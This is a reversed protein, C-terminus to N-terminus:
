PARISRSCRPRPWARRSTVGRARGARVDRGAGTVRVCISTVSIGVDADGDTMLGIRTMAPFMPERVHAAYFNRMERAFKLYNIPDGGAYPTADKRWAWDPTMASAAAKVPAQMAALWRPADYPGYSKFLADLRLLAAYLLICILLTPAILTRWQPSPVPM